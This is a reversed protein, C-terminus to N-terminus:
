ARTGSAAIALHPARRVLLRVADAIKDMEYPKQFVPYASMWPVKRFVLHSDACTIVFSRDPFRDLLRLVVASSREYPPDLDFVIVSPSSSAILADIRKIGASPEIGCSKLNRQVLMFSVLEIVDQNWVILAVDVHTNM